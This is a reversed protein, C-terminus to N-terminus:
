VRFLLRAGASCRVPRKASSCIARPVNPTPWGPLRSQRDCPGAPATTFERPESWETPQGTGIRYVYTASPRLGALEVTHRNVVPDNM